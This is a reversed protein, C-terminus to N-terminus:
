LLDNNLNALEGREGNQLTIHACKFKKQNLRLLQIM